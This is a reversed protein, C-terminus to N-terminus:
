KYRQALLPLPTHPHSSRPSVDFGERQDFKRCAIHIKRKLDVKTVQSHFLDGKGGECLLLSFELWFASLSHANGGERGRGQGACWGASPLPPPAARELSTGFSSRRRSSILGRGGGLGERRAGNLGWKRTMVATAVIRDLDHQPTDWRPKTKRRRRPCPGDTIVKCVVNQQSNPLLVYLLARLEERGM